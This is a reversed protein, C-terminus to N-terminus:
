SVTVEATINGARVIERGGVLLDTVKGKLKWGMFPCNQSKSEFSDPTVTWELDPDVITVDAPAGVSLTGKDIGLIQAPRFSLSEALRQPSLAGPHVLRTMVVGLATELGIVGFPAAKLGLEKDANTHPAHDTAVADITGDALADRLAKQDDSACLPPKMKFVPDHEALDDETLSLHHPTVEATVPLKQKKAWRIMEVAEQTSVHCLHLKGGTAKVLLLDRSVMVSEAASPIGAVGQRLSIEGEHMVGEASLLTDEEHALIPADFMKTYELARRMLNSNMISHGDDSFAVAGAKQLEGMEALSEGKLGKTVAGVPLVNVLGVRQAESVLFEIMPRRDAVPDTNAMACISSFGGVAAARAGTQVTEKEEQGPSRLHVHLDIFGPLVWKGDAEIVQAGSAKLNKGVSAIKGQDILLDAQKDLQNAPDIIRGNKILIKSM